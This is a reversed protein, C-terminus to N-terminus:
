RARRSGQGTLRRAARSLLNSLLTEQPGQYVAMGTGASPPTYGERPCSLDHAALKARVAHEGEIARFPLAGDTFLRLVVRGMFRTLTNSTKMYSREVSGSSAVGRSWEFLFRAAPPKALNPEIIFTIPAGWSRACEDFAGAATSAVDGPYSEVARLWIVSQGPLEREYVDRGIQFVPGSEADKDIWRLSYDRAM